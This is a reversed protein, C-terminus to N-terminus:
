ETIEGCISTNMRYRIESLSYKHGLLFMLKTVAAEITSDHGSIVGIELLHRGTEYLSMEVSGHQCQS